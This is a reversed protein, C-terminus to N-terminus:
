KALVWKHLDLLELWPISGYGSQTYWTAFDDFTIGKRFNQFAIGGAWHAGNRAVKYVSEVNRDIKSGKITTLTDELEDHDLATTLAISLLISLFCQFCKNMEARQLRGRKNSDLIEFAFELKDSKKGRCLVTLGCAVETATARGTMEPDFSDFIILLVDSLLKQDPGKKKMMPILNQMALTYSQKSIKTRSSKQLIENCVTEPQLMHLGSKELVRRLDGIRISSVSLIYGGHQEHTVLHFRLPHPRNSDPPSSSSYSFSRGIRPSQIDGKDMSPQM